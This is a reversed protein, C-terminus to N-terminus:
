NGLPVLASTDGGSRDSVISNGQYPSAKPESAAKLNLDLNGDFKYIRNNPEEINITGSLGRLASEHAFQDGLDRAVGKLKLNTEGDLNKTEVYFVGEPETSNLLIMDAPFFQNERVRVIDGVQIDSWKAAEFAGAEKSFIETGASNGEADEKHRKYDEYADKIMSLIVVFALPPLMAPQRNSISIVDVTQMFMIVLFYLNAVKFAFQEFLNVPLFTLISYKSTRVINNKVDRRKRFAALAEDGLDFSRIGKQEVVSSDARLLPPRARDDM